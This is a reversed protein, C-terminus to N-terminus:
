EGVMILGYSDVPFGYDEASLTQGYRITDLVNNDLSFIGLVTGSLIVLFLACAAKIEKIYKRKQIVAPKVERILSSVKNLTEMEKKCEECEEIHKKLEEDNSFTFLAEFKTCKEKM